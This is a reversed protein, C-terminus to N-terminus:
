ISGSEKARSILEPTNAAEFKGLLRKRYWRVTEHSLFVADAIQATTYGKALLDLIERERKTLHPADAGPKVDAPAPVPESAPTEGSRTKQKRHRLFFSLVVLFMGTLCGALNGLRRKQRSLVEKMNDLNETRFKPSFDPHAAYYADAKRLYSLSKRTKGLDKYLRGYGKWAQVIMLSDGSAEAYSLALDYEQRAQHLDGEDVWTEGMNYHLVSNSEDWGYKEFIEGAKGYWEMAQPISDMMNYLNGIAGYLASRNDDIERESYGDPNTPSTATAMATVSGLAARYYFLASDYQERGYFQQGLYRYADSDASHWQRPHSISLAKRAYFMCKEGNIVAYGLMLDRCARNLDVLAETTARDVADPTWAAVVRELSDLNHGRHDNYAGAVLTSSLFLIVIVPWNKM